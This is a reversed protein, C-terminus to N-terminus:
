HKAIASGNKVGTGIHEKLAAQGKDVKDVLARSWENLANPKLYVPGRITDRQDRPFDTQASVGSNLLVLWLTLFVRKHLM